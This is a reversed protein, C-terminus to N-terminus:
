DNNEKKNNTRTTSLHKTTTSGSSHSAPRHHKGNTVILPLPTINIDYILKSIPSVFGNDKWAHSRPQGITSHM